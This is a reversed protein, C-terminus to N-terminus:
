YMSWSLTTAAQIKGSLNASPKQASLIESRSKGASLTIIDQGSSIRPLQDNVIESVVAGSCSYFEFTRKSPDGLMPSQNMLNPYAHDYRSCLWDPTGFSGLRSGAGIGASYSDGIAAFKKIFSLDRPNYDDDRKGLPLSLPLSYDPAPLAVVTGLLAAFAACSPHM